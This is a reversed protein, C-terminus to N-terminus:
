REPATGFRIRVVAGYASPDDDLRDIELTALDGVVARAVPFALAAPPVVERSDIELELTAGVDATRFRIAGDHGAGLLAGSVLCRLLQRTRPTDLPVTAHEDLASCDVEVAHAISISDFKTVVQHLLPRVETSAGRQPKAATLLDDVVTGLRQAAERMADLADRDSESLRGGDILEAYGAITHVPTKLEHSLEGILEMTAALLDQERRAAVRAREARTLRDVVSAISTAIMDARHVQRDTWEGVELRNVILAGTLTDDSMLPIALVSRVGDVRWTAVDREAEPPADDVDTLRVQRGQLLQGVSWAWHRMPVRADDPALMTPPMPKTDDTWGVALSTTGDPHAILLSARDARLGRGLEGLIGYLDRRLARDDSRILRLALEAGPDDISEMRLLAISFAAALDAADELLATVAPDTEDLESTFAWILAGITHSGSRIPAHAYTRVGEREFVEREIAAEDPLEDTRGLMPGPLDLMLRYWYPRTTRRHFSDTAERRRLQPADDSVWMAVFNFVGTVPFRVLGIRRPGLADCHEGFAALAEVVEADLRDDPVSSLRLALEPSSLEM